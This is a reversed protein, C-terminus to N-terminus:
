NLPVWATGSYIFAQTANSLWIGGTVPYSPASAGIGMFPLSRETQSVGNAVFESNINTPSTGLRPPAYSAGRIHNEKVKSDALTVYSLLYFPTNVAYLNNATMVLNTVFGANGSSGSTTAVGYLANTMVNRTILYGTHYLSSSSTGLRLLSLNPCDIVKNGDITYDQSVQDVQLCYGGTGAVGMFTNFLFDLGLTKGNVEMFQSSTYCRIFDNREIRSRRPVTTWPSVNKWYIAPKADLYIKEWKCNQVTCHDTEFYIQGCGTATSSGYVDGFYCDVVSAGWGPDYNFTLSPGIFQDFELGPGSLYVTVPKDTNNGWNEFRCHRIVGGVSAMRVAAQDTSSSGGSSGNRFVCDEITAGLDAVYVGNHAATAHDQGIFSCDRILVKDIKQQPIQNTPMQYGQISVGYQGNRFDCGIVRIVDVAPNRLDIGSSTTTSVGVFSCRYVELSSLIQEALSWPEPPRYYIGVRNGAFRVNDILVKGRSPMPQRFSVAYRANQIQFGRLVVNTAGTIRFAETATAASEGAHKLISSDGAGEIHLDAFVDIVDSEELDFTGKPIWLVKGNRMAEQAAAELADFDSVGDDAIAGFDTISVVSPIGIRSKADIENTARAVNTAFWHSMSYIGFDPAAAQSVWGFMVALVAVVWQSLRQKM